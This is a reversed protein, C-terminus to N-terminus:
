DKHKGKGKGKDKGEKHEWKEDGHWGKGGHKEWYKEKEWTSWYNKLHRYSIHRHGPPVQRFNPPLNLLVTPVKKPPIYVWHENYNKSQYWHGQHPRYWYGQYFFVDVEVKPAFYVYTKPIVYMPPPLPIVLAPPPSVNIGVKVNVEAIGKDLQGIGMLLLTWIFITIFISKRM